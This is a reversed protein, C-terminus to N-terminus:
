EKGIVHIGTVGATPILRFRMGFSDYRGQFHTIYNREAYSAFQYSCRLQIVEDRIDDFLGSEGLECLLEHFEDEELVKEKTMKM